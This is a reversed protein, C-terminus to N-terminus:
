MAVQLKLSTITGRDTAQFRDVITASPEPLATSAEYQCRTDEMDVEESNLKCLRHPTGCPVAVLLTSDKMRTWRLLPNNIM